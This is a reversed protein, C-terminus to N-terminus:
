RAAALDPRLARYHGGKSVPPLNQGITTWTEGENESFFVDGDTTGAFLEFGGPFVNMTMGEINGRLHGPLGGSLYEWTHGADRTRAIAADADKSTRWSGPSGSSGATFMVDPQQPLIVLADPYTIRDETLPMVEWHGG